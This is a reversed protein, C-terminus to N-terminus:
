QETRSVWVPPERVTSPTVAWRQCPACHWLTLTRQGDLSPCVDEIEAPTGCHPCPWPSPEPRTLVTLIEGKCRRLEERLKEPLKGPPTARLKGEPSVALVVGLDRCRSLVEQVNM